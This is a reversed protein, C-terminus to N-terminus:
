SRRRISRTQTSRGQGIAIESPPSIRIPHELLTLLASPLKRVSYCSVSTNKTLMFCGGPLRLKNLIHTVTCWSSETNVLERRRDTPGTGVEICEHAHLPPDFNAMSGDTSLIGARSVNRDVTSDDHGVHRWQQEGCLWRVYGSSSLSTCAWSHSQRPRQLPM